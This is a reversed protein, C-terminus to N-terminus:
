SAVKANLASQKNATIMKVASVCRGQTHTDTRWSTHVHITDLRFFLATQQLSALCDSEGLRGSFVCVWLSICLLVCCLCVQLGVGSSHAHTHTHQLSPSLSLSFPHQHQVTNDDTIPEDISFYESLSLCLFSVSRSCASLTFAFLFHCLGKHASNAQKQVHKHPKTYSSFIHAEAFFMCVFMQSLFERNQSKDMNQNGWRDGPNWAAANIWFTCHLRHM